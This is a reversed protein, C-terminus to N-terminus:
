DDDRVPLALFKERIDDMVGNAGLSHYNQYMNEFDSRMDNTAYGAKSCQNYEKLLSHRLLAQLGAKMAKTEKNQQKIKAVFYGAIGSIAAPVGTLCLIQYVTM